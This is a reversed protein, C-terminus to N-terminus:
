GPRQKAWKIVNFQLYTLLYSQLLDKLIPFPDSFLAKPIQYGQQLGIPRPFLNLIHFPRNESREGLHFGAQNKKRNGKVFLSFFLIYIYIFLPHTM